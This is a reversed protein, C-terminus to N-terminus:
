RVIVEVRRNRPEPVGDPTDILPNGEGHSSTHLHDPYVGKEILLDRVSTARDISLKLNYEESGTRDTHGNISIDMSNHKQIAYVIRMLTEKSKEELESSGPKFYLLFKKPAPPMAALAQSFIQTVERESLIRPPSPKTDRSRIVTAQNAASLIQSGGKTIVEVKGIKGSPDQILVVVNKAPCCACVMFVLWLFFVSRKLKM